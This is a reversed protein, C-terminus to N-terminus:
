AAGRVQEASWRRPRAPAPQEDEEVLEPVVARVPEGVFSGDAPDDWRPIEFPVPPPAPPGLMVVPAPEFVAVGRDEDAALMQQLAPTLDRRIPM